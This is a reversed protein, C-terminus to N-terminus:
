QQKGAMAEIAAMALASYHPRVFEMHMDMDVAKATQDDLSAYALARAVREIMESAEAESRKSMSIDYELDPDSSIKEKMWERSPLKM